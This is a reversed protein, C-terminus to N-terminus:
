RRSASLHAPIQGGAHAGGRGHDGGGPRQGRGLGLWQDGIRVGCRQHVLHTDIEEGAEDVAGRRGVLRGGGADPQHDVHHSDPGPEEVVEEDLRGPGPDPLGDDQGGPQIGAGVPQIPGGAGDDELQVLGRHDGGLGQGHLLDTGYRRGLQVGNGDVQAVVPRFCQAVVTEVGSRGGCPDGAVGCACEDFFAVRAGEALSTIWARPVMRNIPETPFDKAGPPVNALPTTPIKYAKAMWYSEDPGSLVEIDSLMKVWYTSFWGPVILRLPPQAAQQAGACLSFALLCSAALAPGWSAMFKLKVSM